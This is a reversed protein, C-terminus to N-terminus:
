INKVKFVASRRHFNVTLTQEELFVQLILQSLFGSLTSQKDVAVIRRILDTLYLAFQRQNAQNCFLMKKILRIVLGSMEVTHTLEALSPSSRCLLHVAGQWISAGTPDNCLWAQGHQFEAISAFVKLLHLLLVHTGSDPEPKGLLTLV